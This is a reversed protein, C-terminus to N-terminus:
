SANMAVSKSPSTSPKTADIQPWILYRLAAAGLAATLLPRYIHAPVDFSGAIFAAPIATVAFPWFVQWDFRGARLYRFAGLGAVVINLVLAAPRIEEPALGALAM